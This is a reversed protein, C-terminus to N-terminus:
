IFMDFEWLCGWNRGFNVLILVLFCSVLEMQEVQREYAKMVERRCEDEEKNTFFETRRALFGFFNGLIEPMGGECQQAVNFLASDSRQELPSPNM